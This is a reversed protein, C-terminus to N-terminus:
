VNDWTVGRWIKLITSQSVEFKEAVEKSYVERSPPRLQRILRVDDHTLKASHSDQGSPIYHTRYKRADGAKARARHERCGIAKCPNCWSNIARTGNPRTFYRFESMDKEIKCRSCTKVPM